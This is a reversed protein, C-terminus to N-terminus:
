AFTVYNDKDKDKNLIYSVSSIIEVAVVCHTAHSYNIDIPLYADGNTWRYGSDDLAHWGDLEISNLHDTIHQVGNHSFVKISGVLIGLERRDDLYPGIVDYPRSSRSIIRLSKIPSPVHFVAYGNNVRMPLIDVGDEGILRVNHDETLESVRKVGGARKAIKQFIPEVLERQVALPAAADHQWSAMKTYLTALPGHQAFNRRNGTDLYSESLMGQSWLVSHKATEIHYVSYNTLSYDYQISKGNVLMRAPVFMGDFFLCHEPTVLLDHSPVNDSIAGALIRVPYGAEDDPLHPRFVSKQTGVWTLKEVVEANNRWDYTLVEDGIKLSEVTQVGLPTRIETGGLFCVLTITDGNITFSADGTSTTTSANNNSTETTYAEVMNANLSKETNSQVVDPYIGAMQISTSEGNDSYVTIVNNSNVTASTITGGLYNFDISGDRYLYGSQLNSISNILVTGGSSIIAGTETTDVSLTELGGAEIVTAYAEAGSGLLSMTGGSLMVNSTVTAKEVSASGGSDITAASFLLQNTGTLAGNQGYGVDAYGGSLIHASISVARNYFLAQGGSSIVTDIDEGVISATQGNYLGDRFSGGASVVAGSITGSSFVAIIGGSLATVNAASGSSAYEYGGNSVVIGGSAAAIDNYGTGAGSIIETGGSQITDAYGYGGSSILETGGSLINAASI